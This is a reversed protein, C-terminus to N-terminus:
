AADRLSRGTQRLFVDDLSPRSLSITRLELGASDLARLIAPMAAEGHEVYLRVTGDECSAERVFPEHALLAHAAQPEGNIGLIVLDGAIQRKLDDATGEAVIKGHDMIALRDCLADAEELYHTTLFITTGDDRLRRVEDWM